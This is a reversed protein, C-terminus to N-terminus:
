RFKGANAFSQGGIEIGIGFSQGRLEMADLMVNCMQGACKEARWKLIGCQKGSIAQSIKGAGHPAGAEATAHINVSRDCKRM